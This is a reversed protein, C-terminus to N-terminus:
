PRSGAASMRFPLGLGGFVICSRWLEVGSFIFFYFVSLFVNKQLNTKPRNWPIVIKNHM